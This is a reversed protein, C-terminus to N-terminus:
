NSNEKDYEQSQRNVCTYLIPTRFLKQHYAFFFVTVVLHIQVYRADCQLMKRKM